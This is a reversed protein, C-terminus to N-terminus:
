KGNIGGMKNIEERALEIANKIEQGYTANKGSLPLIAGIKIYEKTVPRKKSVGWYILGVLIIFIVVGIIIKTTKNM